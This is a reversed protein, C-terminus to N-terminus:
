LVERAVLEVVGVEGGEGREGDVACLDAGTVHQPEHPVGAVRLVRGVVKMELDM